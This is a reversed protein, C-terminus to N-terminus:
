NERFLHEIDAQAERPTRFRIGALIHRLHSKMLRLALRTNRAQIAELLAQHENEGCGCLEHGSHQESAMLILSSRPILERLIRELTRNRAGQAIATHFEGSLRIAARRDGQTCARQEDAFLAALAAVETDDAKDIFAELLPLEILIRAEFVEQAEAPTPSAISAGRNHALEVIQEAALRVLVQRIRTRSVGFVRGLKEEGLRTGPALRHDLVAEVIREYIDNDTLALPLHAMDNM